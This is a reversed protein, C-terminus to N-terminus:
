MLFGGQPDFCSPNIYSLLDHESMSTLEQPLMTGDDEPKRMVQSNTSPANNSNQRTGNVTMPVPPSKRSVQEAITGQNSPSKPLIGEMATNMLQASQTAVSNLINKTAIIAHATTTTIPRNNMIDQTANTIVNNIAQEAANTLRQQSPEQAAGSALASSAEAVFGAPQSLMSGIDQQVAHQMAQAAQAQQVAQQVAQVQQVVEQTAQQVAQQVVEQTAQQVAQQVSPVSHVQQAAQVQQVAKQVVHAHQVVQQVVQQQAQQVAQVAQQQAQAVVQEVQQQAHAVVQEVQQVQQQMVVHQQSMAQIQQMQEAETSLPESNVQLSNHSTVSATPTVVTSEQMPPLLAANITTLLSEEASTENVVSGGGVILEGNTGNSISQVTPSPMLAELLMTKVPIPPSTRTQQPSAITDCDSLQGLMSNPSTRMPAVLQHSEAASNVLADLKEIAATPALINATQQSSQPHTNAIISARQQIAGVFTSDQQESDKPSPATSELHNLYKEISQGSQAPLPQGAPTTTFNSLTNYESQHHKMRLDVVGAGQLTQNNTIGENPLMSNVDKNIHHPSIVKVHSQEHMYATQHSASLVLPHQNRMLDVVGLLSVAEEVPSGLSPVPVSRIMGPQTAELSNEGVLQHLPSSNSTVNSTPTPMSQMSNESLMSNQSNDDLVESKLSDPIILQHNSSSRRNLLANSVLNPPPMMVEQVSNQCNTTQSAWMMVPTVQASTSTPPSSPDAKLVDSQQQSTQGQQQMSTLFNQPAAATQPILAAIYFVFM